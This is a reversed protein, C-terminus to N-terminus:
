LELIGRFKNFFTLGAALWKSLVARLLEAVSNGPTCCSCFLFAVPRLFTFRRVETEQLAENTLTQHQWTEATDSSSSCRLGLCARPGRPGSYAQACNNLLAWSEFMSSLESGRPDEEVKHVMTAGHGGAAHWTLEQPQAMFAGVSSGLRLTHTLM